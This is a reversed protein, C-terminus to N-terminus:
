FNLVTQPQPLVTHVVWISIPRTETELCFDCTVAAENIVSISLKKSINLVKQNSQIHASCRYSQQRKRNGKGGGREHSGSGKLNMVKRWQKCVCAHACVCICVCICVCGSFLSTCTDLVSRRPVPSGIYSTIGPSFQNKKEWCGNFVQWKRKKLRRTPGTEKYM